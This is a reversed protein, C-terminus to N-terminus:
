GGSGHTGTLREMDRRLRDSLAELYEIDVREILVSPDGSEHGDHDNGRRDASYGCLTRLEKIVRRMQWQTVHQSPESLGLHPTFEGLEADWTKISYRATAPSIM